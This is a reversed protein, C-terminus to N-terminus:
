NQLTFIVPVIKYHSSTRNKLPMNRIGLIDNFLLLHYKEKRTGDKWGFKKILKTPSKGDPNNKDNWFIRKADGRKVLWRSASYLPFLKVKKPFKLQKELQLLEKRRAEIM